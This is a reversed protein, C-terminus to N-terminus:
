AQYQEWARQTDRGWKGDVGYRGLDIGANQM